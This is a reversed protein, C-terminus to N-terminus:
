RRFIRNVQRNTIRNRNSQRNTIKNKIARFPQDGFICINKEKYYLLAQVLSDVLDDKGGKDGTFNLLQSVINSVRYNISKHPFFINGGDFYPTVLEARQLKTKSKPNFGVVRSFGENNLDDILAIGNAKEEILMAWYDPYKIRLERLKDKTENYSYRGNMFDLLYYKGGYESLITIACDDGFKSKNTLNTDVSILIKNITTPVETYYLIKDAQFIVGFENVPQQQYQARWNNMNAKNESYKTKYAEWLYDGDLRKDYDNIPMGDEYQAPLTIRDWPIYDRTGRLMADQEVLRGIIDDSHWRTAFVIQISKQQARSGFTTIFWNWSKDRILQSNSEQHDKFYDDLIMLDAGKGTLTNGRGAALYGGRESNVNSFSLSTVQKSKKKKKMKPDLSRTDGSLEEDNTRLRAKPFLSEYKESFLIPMLEAKTFDEAREQNYTTYITRKEPYRGFFYSILLQGAILSKGHQPPMEIILRGEGKELYESIKTMIITHFLQWGHGGSLVPVIHKCYAEFDSIRLYRVLEALKNEEIHSLKTKRNALISIQAKLQEQISQQM